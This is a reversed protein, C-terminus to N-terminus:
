KIALKISDQVPPKKPFHISLVGDTYSADPATTDATEPLRICRQVFLRSRETRHWTPSKGGEEQEATHSEEINEEHDVRLTLLSGELDM